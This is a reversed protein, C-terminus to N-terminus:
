KLGDEREAFMAQMVDIVSRFFNFSPDDPVEDIAAGVVYSEDSKRCYRVKIPFVLEKEVTHATSFRCICTCGPFVERRCIFSLGQQSFNVLTCPIADEGCNVFLHIYQHLFEPIQYRIELRRENEREKVVKGAITIDRVM